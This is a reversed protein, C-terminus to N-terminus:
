KRPDGQLAGLKLSRRLLVMIVVATLHRWWIDRMRLPENAHQQAGGDNGTQRQLAVPYTAGVPPSSTYVPLWMLSKANIRRLGLCDCRGPDSQCLLSDDNVLGKVTSRLSCRSIWRSMIKATELQL